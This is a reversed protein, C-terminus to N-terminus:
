TDVRSRQLNLDLLATLADDESIAIPWGYAEAVAADLAEHAYSLWAPRENYLKTLTRQKLASAAAANRPVPRKPYGPVPEEVWDVWEPPNLWHDRLKVLNTATTAITLASPVEAYNAAPVNPELGAPFPFTQFTTTASYVPNNGKGM